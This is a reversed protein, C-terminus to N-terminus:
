ADPHLADRETADLGALITERIKDHVFACSAGRVWILHRRRAENLAPLVEAEPTSALVAALNADFEKGLVAGARLLGITPASLLALRRALLAGARRSASVEDLAAPQSTWGDPTDVLAGSEVLGRLVAAAMFPSGEALDVVVR